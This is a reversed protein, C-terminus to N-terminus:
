IMFCDRFYGIGNMILPKALNCHFGAVTMAIFIPM